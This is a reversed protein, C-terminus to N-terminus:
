FNEVIISYRMNSDVPFGYGKLPQEIKKYPPLCSLFYEVFCKKHCGRKHTDFHWM